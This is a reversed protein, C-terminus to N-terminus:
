QLHFPFRKQGLIYIRMFTNRCVEADNIFYSFEIADNGDVARIQTRIYDNLRRVLPTPYRYAVWGKSRAELIHGRLGGRVVTCSVGDPLLRLGRRLLGLVHDPRREPREEDM